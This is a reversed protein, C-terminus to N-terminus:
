GGLRMFPMLSFYLVAGAGALYLLLRLPERRLRSGLSELRGQRRRHEYNARAERHRRQQYDDLLRRAPEADADDAIWIAGGSILWRSPPTEFFEIRRERLLARVQEAEDDPVGRLNMLLVAM